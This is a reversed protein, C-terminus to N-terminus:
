TKIEDKHDDKQGEKTDTDAYVAKGKPEASDLGKESTKQGRHKRMSKQPITSSLTTEGWKRPIDDQKPKSGFEEGEMGDWERECITKEKGTIAYLTNHRSNYILMRRREERGQQM